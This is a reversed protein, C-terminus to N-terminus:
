LMEGIRPEVRRHVTWALAAFLVVFIALRGIAAMDLTGDYFVSRWANVLSFFPNLEFYRRYGAPISGLPYVIPTLFFVAQLLVGVLYEVDRAVVSISALVLTLPFTVALQVVAMVPILVLWQPHWTGTTIVLAGLIVPCAFLFHLMEQIVDSLPLILRQTQVKRVLSENARYSGSGRLLSGSAWAWPFLGTV